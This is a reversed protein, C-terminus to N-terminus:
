SLDRESVREWYGSKYTLFNCYKMVEDYENRILFKFNILTDRV